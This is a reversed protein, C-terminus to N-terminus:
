SAEPNPSSVADPHDEKAFRVLESHLILVKTGEHKVRLRQSAIHYDLSRISISLIAAADERTHRLRTVEPRPLRQRQKRHGTLTAARAPQNKPTTVGKVVPVEPVVAALTPQQRIPLLKDGPFPRGAPEINWDLLDAILCEARIVEDSPWDEPPEPGTWEVAPPTEFRGTDEPDPRDQDDEHAMQPPESSAAPLETPHLEPNEAAALAVPKPKTGFVDWPSLDTDPSTSIRAPKPEM